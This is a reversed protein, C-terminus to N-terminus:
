KRWPDHSNEQGSEKKRTTETHRFVPSLSLFVGRVLPLRRCPPASAYSAQLQLDRDAFSGSITPSKQPFWRHLYPMRHTKAVRYMNPERARCTTTHATLMISINVNVARAHQLVNCHTATHQRTNCSSLYPIHQEQSERSICSVAVYQVVSCWVAAVCQLLIWVSCCVAVLHTM